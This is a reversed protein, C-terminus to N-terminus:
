HKTPGSREINICKNYYKISKAKDASIIESFDYVSLLEPLPFHVNGEM